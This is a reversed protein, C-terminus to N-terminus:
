LCSCVSERKGCSPCIRTHRRWELGSKSVGAVTMIYGAACTAGIAIVLQPDITVEENM